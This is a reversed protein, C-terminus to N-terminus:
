RLSMQKSSQVGWVRVTSNVCVGEKVEVRMRWLRVLEAPPPCTVGSATRVLM